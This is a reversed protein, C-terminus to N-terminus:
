KLEQISILEDVVLQMAARHLLYYNYNLLRPPTDGLELAFEADNM